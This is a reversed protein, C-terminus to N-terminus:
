VIREFSTCTPQGEKDYKWEKPYDKDEIGYVMSRLQIGCGDESENHVCNECFVELFIMGESGNAPRYLGKRKKAM